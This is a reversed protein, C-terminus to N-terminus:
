TETYSIGRSHAVELRRCVQGAFKLTQELPIWHGDAEKIVGEVDGGGMLETVRYPQDAKQGLDFVAGIYPHSSLLGM